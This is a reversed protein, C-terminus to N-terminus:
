RHGQPRSSWDHRKRRLYSRWTAPLVGKLATLAADLWNRVLGRRAAAVAIWEGPTLPRDAAISADGRKCRITVAGMESGLLQGPGFPARVSIAALYPEIAQDFLSIFARYSYRGSAIVDVYAAKTMRQVYTNDHLKDLVDDVNSFDKRLSIYHQGLRLVGSYQGEFLVLATGCVIAEFVRPSVQNMRIKGEHPAIFRSRIEQYSAAPDQKLAQEVSRRINGDEDLVNAGSETGLTATCSRLFEYWGDGYIRSSEDWEIDEPIGRAWCIAKMRRGIDAKEQGLDGYWYALTRGRYGILYPRVVGEPLPQRELRSPVYGTLNHVFKVSPFRLRPYVKEQEEPPVCTFVLVIGLTEIARRATETAEYEDQIFLVKPGQFAELARAYHYSLHRQLCLRVSYHLVVADFLSLDVALANGTGDAYFIRYRSFRAFSSLHEEVTPIDIVLPDYLVLLTANSPKEEV